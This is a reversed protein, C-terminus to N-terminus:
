GNGRVGAAMGDSCREIVKRLEQLNVPKALHECFGADKSREKDAPYALGSVAVAPLDSHVRRLEQLLNRGTGDALRLDAVLLDVENSSALRIAAECSEAILVTHGDRQLAARLLEACDAHDDVVLILV